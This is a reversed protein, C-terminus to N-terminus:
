TERWDVTVTNPLFMRDVVVPRGPRACVGALSYIRATTGVTCDFEDEHFVRRSEMMVNYWDGVIMSKKKDFTFIMSKKKKDVDVEERWIM